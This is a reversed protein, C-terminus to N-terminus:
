QLSDDDADLMDDYSYYEDNLRVSVNLLNFSTLYTFGLAFVQGTLFGLLFMTPQSWTSFSSVVPDTTSSLLIKAADM